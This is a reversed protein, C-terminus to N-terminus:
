VERASRLYIEHLLRKANPPPIKFDGAVIVNGGAKEFVAGAAPRGVIVTEFEPKTPKKASVWPVRYHDLVDTVNKGAQVEALRPRKLIWKPKLRPDDNMTVTLGFQNAFNRARATSGGAYPSDLLVTGDAAWSVGEVRDLLFAFALYVDSERPDLTLREGTGRLIGPPRFETAPKLPGRPEGPRLTVGFWEALTEPFRQLWWTGKSDLSVAGREESVRELFDAAVSRDAQEEWNMSYFRDAM